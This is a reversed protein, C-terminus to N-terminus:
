RDRHFVRSRMTPLSAIERFDKPYAPIPDPGVYVLTEIGSEDLARTITAADARSQVVGFYGPRACWADPLRAMAVTARDM